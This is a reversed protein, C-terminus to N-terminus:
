PNHDDDPEQERRAPAYTHTLSAWLLPSYQIGGTERWLQLQGRQWETLYAIPDDLTHAHDVALAVEVTPHVDRSLHPYRQRIGGDTPLTWRTTTVLEAGADLTAMVLGFTESSRYDVGGECAIIAVRPPMPWIESGAQATDAGYYKWVNRDTTMTTGLMLDLASLPRHDDSTAPVPMGEPGLRSRRMPEAMGWTAATDSLHLSATGPEDPTASVHGFYFLRSRTTRLRTSLAGRTMMTGPMTRNTRGDAGDTNEYKRIRDRMVRWDGVPLTPKLGHETVRGPIKPDIIFLPPYTRLEGWPRVQANRASHVTAPPDHIIDVVDVLRQDGSIALTEWPIRALQPSPTLRLRIRLGSNTRALLQEVLPGPLVAAALEEALARESARNAFAGDTLGRSVATEADEGDMPTILAHALQDLGATLATASLRAAYPTAADDLWRWTVYTDGADATRVLLDVAPASRGQGGSTGAALSDISM